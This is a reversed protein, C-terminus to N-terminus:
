VEDIVDDFMDANFYHKSNKRDIILYNLYDGNVDQELIVPYTEGVRISDFEDNEQFRNKKCEVMKLIIFTTGGLQVKDGAKM